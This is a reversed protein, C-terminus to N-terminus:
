LDGTQQNSIDKTSPYDMRKPKWKSLILLMAVLCILGPLSAELGFQGGTLWAPAEGFLPKVLGLQETGSVDFGLVGGQMWNAMWHLGLPMALSRTRIFVLGFLISAPFINVSAMVKINGTM